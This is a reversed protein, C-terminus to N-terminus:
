TREVPLVDNWHVEQQLLALSSEARFLTACSKNIYCLRGSSSEWCAVSLYPNDVRHHCEDVVLGYQNNM